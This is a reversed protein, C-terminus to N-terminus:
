GLGGGRRSVAEVRTAGAEQMAARAKAVATEDPAAASLV